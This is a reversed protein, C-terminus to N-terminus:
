LEFEITQRDPFLFVFIFICHGRGTAVVAIRYILSNTSFRHVDNFINLYFSKIKENKYVKVYTYKKPITDILTMCVYIKLGSFPLIIHTIHFLSYIPIFVYRLTRRFLGANFAIEWTLQNGHLSTPQWSYSDWKGSTGTIEM